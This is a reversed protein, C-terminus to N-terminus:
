VTIWFSTHPQQFQQLETRYNCHRGCGGVSECVLTGGEAADSRPCRHGFVPLRVGVLRPRSRLELLNRTACIPM